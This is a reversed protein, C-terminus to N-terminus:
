FKVSKTIQKGKREIIVSIVDGEKFQSLGKMYSMMDVIELEGMKLVVDGKEIGANHAPRGEKVGDIRMGQGDYLYDPIVGLTVKFKPAEQSEDKTKVFTLDSHQDLNMVLDYLYAQITNMGEFNLLPTDDSPKHYDKHQGTFFHLVPVNELYFSTHDSPGVGSESMVLRLDFKNESNLAPTFSPATGTGNIALKREENLRGVMDMNFMFSIDALDYSANKVYYNSGWLGKEEGSFGIFIINHDEMVGNQTLREALALMVSVGSANDDAGNHIMKEGTHLSGEGGFGLHDYHAGIVIYGKKGNNIIGSVNRVKLIQDEPSDATAHPNARIRRDFDQFYSKGFAPTLGIDMMRKKIYEAAMKEGNTGAERGEMRDDALISVDEKLGKQLSGPNFETTVKRSCSIISILFVLLIIKKLDSCNMDIMKLIKNEIYHL